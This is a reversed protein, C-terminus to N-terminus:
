DYQVRGDMVTVASGSLVIKAVAKASRDLTVAVGIDSQRGMEVGQTMEFEVNRDGRKMALFAALGCAASGTASDELIGEIMRMRLSQKVASEPTTSREGLVYFVSGCFGVNWASDLIPAPKFGSCEVIALSEFDPLQIYIFNMGKVPSVTAINLLEAGKLRPQMTEVETGTFPSETHVHVNHPISARAVGNAYEIEISGADCHLVARTKGLALTSMVHCATGITPHGAFPLEAETMFIRITWSPVDATADSSEHLFVTESLNFERAIARLTPTPVDLDSPITVIALPNGKFRTRTFVDVTVFELSPM